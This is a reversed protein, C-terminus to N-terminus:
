ATKGRKGIEVLHEPTVWGCSAAPVSDFPPIYPKIDLLPTEDLMDVGEVDLMTGRVGKVRVISIGINNPRSFHRMAFVGREVVGDSLPKETLSWAGARNFHYLLILHTFLEIDKLGDAYEPYLELTGNACTMRSQLPTEQAVTHSTRIMGIPRVIIEQKDSGQSM